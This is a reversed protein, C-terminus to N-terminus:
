DDNSPPHPLEPLPPLTEMGSPLPPPPMPVQSDLRSEENGSNQSHDPVDLSVRIKLIRKDDIRFYSIGQPISPDPDEPEY